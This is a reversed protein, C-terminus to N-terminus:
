ADRSKPVDHIFWLRNGTQSATPAQATIQGLDPYESVEPQQRSSAVLYRCSGDDDKRFGHAGAPGVPFIVVEGCRVPREGEETKMTM